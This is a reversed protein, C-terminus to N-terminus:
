RREEYRLAEIESSAASSENRIERKNVSESLSSEHPIM